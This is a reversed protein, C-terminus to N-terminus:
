KRVHFSFVTPSDSSCDRDSTYFYVQNKNQFASVLLGYLVNYALHDNKLVYRNDKSCNAANNIKGDVYIYIHGTSGVMLSNVTTWGSGEAPLDSAQLRKFAFGQLLTCVLLQLMLRSM